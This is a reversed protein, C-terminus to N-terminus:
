FYLLSEVSFEPALPVNYHTFTECSLACYGRPGKELRFYCIGDNKDELGTCEDLFLVALVLHLSCFLFLRSVRTTPYAVYFNGTASEAILFTFCLM